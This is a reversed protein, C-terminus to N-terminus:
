RAIRSLDRIANNDITEHSGTLFDEPVEFSFTTGKDSVSPVTTLTDGTYKLLVGVKRDAFEAPHSIIFLARPSNGDAHVEHGNKTWNEFWPYDEEYDALVAQCKVYKPLNASRRIGTGDINRADNTEPVADAQDYNKLAAALQKLNEEVEHRRAAERASQIAPLLLATGVGCCVLASCGVGTLIVLLIFPSVNKGNSMVHVALYDKDNCAM